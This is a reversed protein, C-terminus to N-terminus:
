FFGLTKEESSASLANEVTYLIRDQPDSRRGAEEIEIQPERAIPSPLLSSWVFCDLILAEVFTKLLLLPALPAAVALTREEKLTARGCDRCRGRSAWSGGWGLRVAVAIAAVM